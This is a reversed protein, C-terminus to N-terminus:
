KPIQLNGMSGHDDVIFTSKGDPNDKYCFNRSGGPGEVKGSLMNEVVTPPFILARGMELVKPDTCKTGYFTETYGDEDHIIRVPRVRDALGFLIALLVASGVALGALVRTRNM